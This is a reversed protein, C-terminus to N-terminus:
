FLLHDLQYMCELDYSNAIWKKHNRIISLMMYFVQKPLNKSFSCPAYLDLVIGEYEDSM